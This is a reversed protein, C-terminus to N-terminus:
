EHHLDGTTSVEEALHHEPRLRLDRRDFGSRDRVRRGAWATRGLQVHRGLQADPMHHHDICLEVDWLLDLGTYQRVWERLPRWATGGPLFAHYQALTLPGLLIRFRFQRDWVKSGVAATAGLQAAPTAGREARNRAYGLRSRDAADFRMWHPVHEEIRVPLKFHRALLKALGEPHRSRSGLLGAQHLRATPPLADGAPALGSVGIASGLWAAYRDDHPRDHQATPQTQAWARYFLALLRHHFIDFFREPTPDGRQRLRERVYETLHLPMPGQPGFLGFFRVGLRPMGNAGRELGALAAVAFDLEAKQGLRLPEQAPRAARGFRPAQPTLAEIRRLLAFFDHEHPAAQLADFLAHLAPAQSAPEPTPARTAM